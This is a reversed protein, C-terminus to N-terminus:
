SICGGLQNDWVRGRSSLHQSSQDFGGPMAAIITPTEAVGVTKLRAHAATFIVPIVGNGPREEAAKFLLADLLANIFATIRRACIDDVVDFDKVIPAPAVAM